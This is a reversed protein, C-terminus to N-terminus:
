KKQSNSKTKKIIESNFTDILVEKAKTKNVGRCALYYLLDEDIKGITAAHGVKVNDAEIELCPSTNTKAKDSLILTHHELRASTEQAKSPVIINGKYNIESKDYLISKIQYFAKTKTTKHISITELSFKESNKGIILAYFKASSNEGEFHFTLKITKKWGKELIAILELHSNKSLHINSSIIDKVILKQSEGEKIELKKDLQNNM